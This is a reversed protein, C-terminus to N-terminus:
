SLHNEPECSSSYNKTSLLKLKYNLVSMDKSNDANLVINYM